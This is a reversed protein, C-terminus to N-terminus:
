VDFEMRREARTKDWGGEAGERKGRGSVLGQPAKEAEGTGCCHHADFEM